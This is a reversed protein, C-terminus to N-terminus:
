LFIYIKDVFYCISFHKFIVVFSKYNHSISIIKLLETLFSSVGKIYPQEQFILKAFGGQSLSIMVALLIDKILDTAHGVATKMMISITMTELKSSIRYSIKLLSGAELFTFIRLM